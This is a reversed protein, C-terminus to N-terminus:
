RLAPLRVEVEVARGRHRARARVTGGNAAVAQRVVWLGLGKEGPPPDPRRLAAGLDRSFRGANAVVLRLRRGRVNGLLRVPGGPVGHRFANGLLNILVQRTHRAHVPWALAAASLDASLDASADAPV